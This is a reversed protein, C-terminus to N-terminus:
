LTGGVIVVEDGNRLFQHLQASTLLQRDGNVYAVIYNGTYLTRGKPHWPVSLDVATGASSCILCDDTSM